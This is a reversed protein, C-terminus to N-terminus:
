TANAIETEIAEATTTAKKNSSTSTSTTSDANGTETSTATSTAVPKSEAVPEPADLDGMGQGGGNPRNDRQVPITTNSRVGYDTDIVEGRAIRENRDSIIKEPNIVSDERVALTISIASTVICVFFVSFTLRYHRKRRNRSAQLPTPAKRVTRNGSARVPRAAIRKSTSAARQPRAVKRRVVKAPSSAEKPM